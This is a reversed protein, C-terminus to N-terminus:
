YLVEFRSDFHGDTCELGDVKSWRRDGDEVEFLSGKTFATSSSALFPPVVLIIGGVTHLLTELADGVKIGSLNDNRWLDLCMM